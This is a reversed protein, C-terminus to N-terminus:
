KKRKVNSKNNLQSIISKHNNITDIIIGIVFIIISAFGTLLVTLLLHEIEM